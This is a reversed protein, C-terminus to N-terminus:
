VGSSFTSVPSCGYVLPQRTCHCRRPWLLFYIRSGDKRHTEGENTITM